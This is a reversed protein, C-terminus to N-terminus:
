DGARFLISGARAWYDKRDGCPPDPLRRALSADDRGHCPRSIRASRIVEPKCLRAGLVAASRSHYRSSHALVARHLVAAPLYSGQTENEAFRRAFICRRMFSRAARFPLIYRLGKREGVSGKLNRVRNRGASSTAGDAQNGCLGSEVEM